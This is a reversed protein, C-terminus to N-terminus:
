RAAKRLSPLFVPAPDPSPTRERTPAPTVSPPTTAPTEGPLTASPTASAPRTSSPTPTARTAAASPSPTTSPPPTMSPTFGPPIPTNTPFLLTPTASPTPHPADNLTRRWIGADGAAAYLVGSQMSGSLAFQQLDGGAPLTLEATWNGGASDTRYVTAVPDDGLARYGGLFVVRDLWFDPSMFLARPRAMGSLGARRVSWTEGEDNSIYTLSRDGPRQEEVSVMLSHDSLYRSSIALGFVNRLPPSAPIQAIEMFPEHDYSRLIVGRETVAFVTHFIPDDAAAMALIGSVTPAMRQWTAGGDMSRLIHSGGAGQRYPVDLGYLVRLTGTIPGVAAISPPDELDPSDGFPSWTRGWDASRYAGSYILQSSALDPAALITDGLPLATGLPTWAMGGSRQFAQYLPEVLIRGGRDRVLERVRALALVPGDAAPAAVVGTMRLMSAGGRLTQTGFRYVGAGRTGVWIGGDSGDMRVGTPDVAAQHAAAWAAGGDLSVQVSGDEMVLVLREETAAVGAYLLAPASGAPLGYGKWVAGGDDSMRLQITKSDGEVVSVLAFLRTGAGAVPTLVVGTEPLDGRGPGLLPTWNTGEDASGYLTPGSLLYARNGEANRALATLPDGSAFELLPRMVWHDGGDDSSMYVHPLNQSGLILRGSALVLLQDVRAVGDPPTVAQWSAGADATRLLVPAHSTGAYASKGELDTPVPAFVRIAPPSADGVKPLIVPLWTRGGDASRLLGKEETVILATRPAQAPDGLTELLSVRDGQLGDNLASWLNPQARTQGAPSMVAVLLILTLWLRVWRAFTIATARPNRQTSFTDM